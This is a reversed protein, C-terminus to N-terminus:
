RPRTACLRLALLAFTRAALVMDALSVHEDAAHAVRVDGPGYQVTPIGAAAYQRLDSGYPAGLVAPRRGGADAVAGAVQDGLPHGAPLAGPAFVGGQWTVEVPHEALWPDDGCAQEVAREFAARAAGIDEGPVVGYRGEAVLLDPVTSAWDGARVIGISMPAALDLHEFGPPPDANREAELRELAAFVPGASHLASVGRTRTAGHTARGRVELHFTLSGANAALVTGNTPEAIVCVSGRHGRRLTALSGIGGDEEGVVTHVALPQELEVGARGLAAVAGMAAIVGAKMDCTGRGAHEDGDSRVTWPDRGPWADLDAPPVVDVHGNLVLAPEASGGITGVCGLAEDRDVEEGPYDPDARLARLDIPWLDVACGLRQLRDACWRQADTEAVTGGVSPIAVLEVLDALLEDADIADLM